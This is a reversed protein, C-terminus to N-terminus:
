QNRVKSLDFDFPVELFNAVEKFVAFKEGGQIRHLDVFLCDEKGKQNKIIDLYVKMTSELTEDTFEPLDRTKLSEMIADPNREMIIFKAEPFQRRVWNIMLLINPKKEGYYKCGPKRDQHFRKYAARLGVNMYRRTEGVHHTPISTIAFKDSSDDIAKISRTVAEWIGIYGHENTISIDREKRWHDLMKQM